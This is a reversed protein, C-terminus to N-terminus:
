SPRELSGETRGARKGLRSILPEAPMATPMAVLMGGCLRRSTAAPAWHYRSFGSASGSVRSSASISRILPGSKGVPARTTPRLPMSSAYRVPRPEMVIRATTSTSSIWFRWHRTTM